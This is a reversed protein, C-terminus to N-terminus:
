VTFSETKLKEPSARVLADVADMYDEATRPGEYLRAENDRRIIVVSPVGEIKYKEALGRHKEINLNRTRIFKFRTGRVFRDWEPKSQKCYGCSDSYFRYVEVSVAVYTVWLIILVGIIILAIHLM